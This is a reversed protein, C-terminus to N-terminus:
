CGTLRISKVKKPSASNVVFPCSHVRIFVFKTRFLCGRILRIVSINPFSAEEGDTCDTTKEWASTVVYCNLSTVTAFGNVRM